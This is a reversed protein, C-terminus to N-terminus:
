GHSRAARGGRKPKPKVGPNGMREECKAKTESAADCGCCRWHSVPSSPWSSWGLAACNGCKRRFPVFPGMGRRLALEYFKKQNRERKLGHLVISSNSFAGHVSAPWPHHQVMFPSNVLTLRLKRAAAIRSIWYGLTADSVPWCAFNSKRPGGPRSLAAKVRTTQFLRQEFTHPFLDQGLLNGLSRSVAFMPGNVVPYPPADSVGDHDIADLAGRGVKKSCPRGSHREHRCAEILRRTKVAASDHFQWGSWEHHTVMTFNDFFPYRYAPALVTPQSCSDPRRSYCGSVV